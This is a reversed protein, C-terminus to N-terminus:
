EDDSDEDGDEALIEAIVRKCAARNHEAITPEKRWGNSPQIDPTEWIRGTLYKVLGPAYEPKWQTRKRKEIDELIRALGPWQKQKKLVKFEVLGIGPGEPRVLKSYEKRLEEFEAIDDDQPANRMERAKRRNKGHPPVSNEGEDFKPEEKSMVEVDVPCAESGKVFDPAFISNSVECVSESCEGQPAPPASKLNQEKEQEHKQEQEQNAYPAGIGKGIGKPMGKGTDQVSKEGNEAENRAQEYGERWAEERIRRIEDASAPSPQLIRNETEPTKLRCDELFDAFSEEFKKFFSEGLSCSADRLAMLIDDRVACEPLDGFGGAWSKIVNPNEPPNHKFFKPFWILGCEDDIKIIGANALERVAKRLRSAPWQLEFALGPINGDVAGFSTMNPHTLLYLLAFKTKESLKRVKADRWISPSIKRYKAM